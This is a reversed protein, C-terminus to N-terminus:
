KSELSDIVNIMMSATLRSQEVVGVFTDNDDVVPLVDMNLQEMHKLVMKKNDDRTVASQSSIFGPLKEIEDTSSNNLFAAFEDFRDILYGYQYSDSQTNRFYAFLPDSKFMGFLSGDTNNIVVYKLYSAATLSEFYKKIAPGWYGGAGLFFELAEAKCEILEPIHEVGEKSGREVMEVVDNIPTPSSYAVQQNIPEESASIFAQAVEFELDGIAIKQIQGTLVLWLFLPIMMLVLDITKIEYKNKSKARFVMSIGCLVIGSVICIAVGPTSM